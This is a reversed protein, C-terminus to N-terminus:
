ELSVQPIMSSSTLIVSKILCIKFDDLIVKEVSKLSNQNWIWKKNKNKM